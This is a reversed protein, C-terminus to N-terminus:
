ARKGQRFLAAADAPVTETAVAAGGAAALLIAEADEPADAARCPIGLAQGIRRDLETMAAGGGTLVAGADNLDASLEEPASDIVMACM